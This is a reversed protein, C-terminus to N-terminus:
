YGFQHPFYGTFLGFRTNYKVRVETGMLKWNEHSEFGFPTLIRRGKVKYYFPGYMAKYKHGYLMEHPAMAQNTIVTAGVQYPINYQPCPYLAANMQPYRGQQHNPAMMPTGTAAPTRVSSAAQQIPRAYAPYAFQQPAMNAYSAPAVTGYRPPAATWHVQRASASNQRSASRFQARATSLSFTVLVALCATSHIALRLM